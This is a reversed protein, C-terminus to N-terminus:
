APPGELMLWALPTGRPIARCAKRGLVTAYHKPALGYGPRIVRVNQPTITEGAAIDCVAFLSRRFRVSVKEGAACGYFVGGLAKEATRIEEVMRAFGEPLLSFAADPSAAGGPIALHKEVLTAGLAVAAVAATSTTTHDSLGVVAGFTRAMDPITRLNMDAADAPYASVCKLLAIDGAGGARLTALALAIEDRTAMGTSLIVPKGTAAVRTLLPVDVLEFSAIKYAPAGQAELFDVATEDFPSSFLTLGVEAATEKLRPYWSWPMYATRYLEHLTRGAWLPHDDLRFYESDCDLTLTDPTYTQVKVADAAARKAARIIACARDLDQGHNASMEAVVYCPQGPGITRGDIIM